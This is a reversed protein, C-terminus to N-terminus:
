YGNKLMIPWCVFGWAWNYFGLLAPFSLLSDAKRDFLLVRQLKRLSLFILLSAEDLFFFLFFVIRVAYGMLFSSFGVWSLGLVCQFLPLGSLFAGAPNDIFKLYAWLTM